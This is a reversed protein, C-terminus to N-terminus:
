VDRLALLPVSVTENSSGASLLLVTSNVMVCETLDLLRGSLCM